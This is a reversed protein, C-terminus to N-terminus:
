KFYIFNFLYIFYLNLFNIYLMVCNFIASNKLFLSLDMSIYSNSLVINYFLIYIYVHVYALDYLSKFYFNIFFDNHIYLFHFFLILTKFECDTDRVTIYLLSM